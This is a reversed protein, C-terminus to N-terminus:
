LERVIAVDELSKAEPFEHECSLCYMITRGADDLAFRELERKHPDCGVMTFGCCRNQIAWVAHRDCNPADCAIEDDWHKELDVIVMDDFIPTDLVTLEPIEATM